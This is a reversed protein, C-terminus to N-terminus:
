WVITKSDKIAKTFIQNTQPGQDLAMLGEPIGEKATVVGLAKATSSVENGLLFDVPLLLEVGASSALSEIEQLMFFCLFLYLSFIFRVCTTTPLCLFSSLSLSVDFVLM